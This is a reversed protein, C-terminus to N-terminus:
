WYALNSAHDADTTFTKPSPSSAPTKVNVFIRNCLPFVLKRLLLGGSATDERSKYVKKQM